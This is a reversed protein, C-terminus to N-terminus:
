HAIILSTLSKRLLKYTVGGLLWERLRSHGYGGMVLLDAKQDGIEGLLAASTDLGRGSAVRVSATIGHCALYGILEDGPKMPPEPLVGHEVVVITVEGSKMLYPLAEAVARAAERSRNWAIVAHEFGQEFTKEEAVLFLHRGSQFLVEEIVDHLEVTSDTDSLRLGLFVDATRCERAAIRAQEHLYVDFRRLEASSAIGRLRKALEVEM